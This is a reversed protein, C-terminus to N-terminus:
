GHKKREEKAKIVIKRIANDLHKSVAQQSIGMAEATESQTFDNEYMTLLAESQKPTLHSRDVLIEFDCLMNSIYSTDAGFFRSARLHHIDKLIAEVGHKTHLPYKKLLRQEAIDYSIHGSM